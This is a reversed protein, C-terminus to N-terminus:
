IYRCGIICVRFFLTQSGLKTYLKNYNNNNSALFSKIKKNKNYIKNNNYRSSTFNNVPVTTPWIILFMM